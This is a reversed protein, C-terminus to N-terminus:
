STANKGQTRAVKMGLLMMVFFLASLSYNLTWYAPGEEMHGTLAFIKVIGLAISSGACIAGFLRLQGPYRLLLPLLVLPLVILLIAFGIGAKDM